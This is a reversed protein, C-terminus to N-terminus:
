TTSPCIITTPAVEKINSPLIAETLPTTLYRTTKITTIDCAIAAEENFTSADNPNTMYSVYLTGNNTSTGYNRYTFSLKLDKIHNSFQPLVAYLPTTRISRFFLCNGSVAYDTSNCIYAQPYTSTTESRNIFNWGDPLPDNPYTSPAPYPDSGTYEDFNEEWPLTTIADCTAKVTNQANAALPAFVALLMTLLLTKKFKSM